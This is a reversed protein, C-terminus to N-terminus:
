GRNSCCFLRLVMLGYWWILGLCSVVGHLEEAHHLAKHRDERRGGRGGACLRGRFRLEIRVDDFDGGVLLFEVDEQQGALGVHFARAVGDQRLVQGARRLHDLQVVLHLPHLVDSRVSAAVARAFGEREVIRFQMRVHRDAHDMRGSASAAHTFQALAAAVVGVARRVVVIEDLLDFERLFLAFHFGHQPVLAFGVGAVAVVDVFSSLLSTVSTRVSMPM